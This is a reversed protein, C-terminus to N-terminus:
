RPSPVYRLTLRKEAPEVRLHVASLFDLGIINLDGVSVDVGTLVVEGVVLSALRADVLTGVRAGTADYSHGRGASKTGVESALSEGIQSHSAGTDLLFLAERNEAAASVFYGGGMEILELEADRQGALRAGEFDARPRGLWLQRLPMDIEFPQLGLVNAGLVGSVEPGLSARIPALDIVLMEFDTFAAGGVQLSTVPLAQQVQWTENVAGVIPRADSELGLAIAARRDIVSSSAGTDLLFWLEHGDLRLPM